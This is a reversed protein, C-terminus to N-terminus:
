RWCSELSILIPGYVYKKWSLLEQFLPSNLSRIQRMKILIPLQVVFLFFSNDAKESTSSDTEPASNKKAPSPVDLASFYSLPQLPCGLLKCYYITVSYWCSGAAKSRNMLHYLMFPDFHATAPQLAGLLNQDRGTESWLLNTHKHVKIVASFQQVSHDKIIGKRTIYFCFM